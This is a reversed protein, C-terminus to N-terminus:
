GICNPDAAVLCCDGNPDWGVCPDAASLCCDGKPWCGCCVVPFGNEIMDTAVGDMENLPLTRVRTYVHM